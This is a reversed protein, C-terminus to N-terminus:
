EILRQFEENSLEKVKETLLSDILTALESITPAAFFTHLPLDVEFIEGAQSLLHTALLSDGGLGFFDDYIGIQSIGLSAQWIEVLARELDNGPAVYNNRIDSRPHEPLSVPARQM